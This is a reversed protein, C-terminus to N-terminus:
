WQIETMVKNHKEHPFLLFSHSRYPQFDDGIHNGMIILSLVTFDEETFRTKVLFEMLALRVLIGQVQFLLMRFKRVPDPFQGLEIFMTEENFENINLGRQSDILGYTMPNSFVRGKNNFPLLSVRTPIFLLEFAKQNLEAQGSHLEV